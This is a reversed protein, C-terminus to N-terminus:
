IRVPLLCGTVCRRLVFSSPRACAELRFATVPFVLRSPESRCTRLALPVCGSVDVATQAVETMARVGFASSSRATNGGRARGPKEM